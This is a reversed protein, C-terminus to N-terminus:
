QRGGGDWWGDIREGDNDGGQRNFLKGVPRKGPRTEREAGSGTPPHSIAM